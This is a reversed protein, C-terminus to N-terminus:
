VGIAPLYLSFTSGTGTESIVTIAGGHKRVITDCLTLGLGIGKQSGLQKTSFYPDFIRPLAEQPIGCGHDQVSIKVYNGPPLTPHKGHHEPLSENVAQITITGGSEQPMSEKANLLLHKIVNRFQSPDASVPWLNEALEFELTLGSNELTSLAEERIHDALQITTPLLNGGPSFAILQATLKAASAYLHGANELFPFAPSTPATSMKALELNGLLGQLLNNFDHAIGGALIGLAELNRNKAVEAELQKHETIDRNSIRHGLDHGDTDYVHHCIHYIWRIAGERHIIRFEFENALGNSSNKKAPPSHVDEYHDKWRQLDDPHILRELLGPDKKFADPSYGTVRECFPSCYLCSGESDEWIEWGYTYDAVTRFKEESELLERTREKVRQELSENIQRIETFQESLSEGMIRFNNILHNAEQIRSEPWTIDQGDTALRMPLDHTILRLKELTLVIRRSLFEALALAGLLVLFLMTLKGTYNEYLMKQFPAAPQELVLKWEALSGITTEAVYFSKQCQETPPTNPPLAPLWQSIGNDLRHLKGKGRAFPTMVEQDRRNTMIAKGNKDLLTYRASNIDTSRDLHERIQELSLVGGVYGSYKGNIVVPALLAVIPRPTGVRGMLVESLRPALTQKLQPLYPRDAFIRGLNNHGLEDTLPFYATSTADKDMLGIRLFNVDSNKAQELFPQMQHPSLMTAMEALNVIATQRNEVWTKVRNTIRHSDQTLHTKITRDIEAFDTRSGVALLLLAPCLVFFVLLNYVIERYSTLSSRSRLAYVTFILRAALANFIGNLAQKVTIISATSYPVQMVTHYFFYVLPMGLLLWYLTDALVLGITRRNILNGVIIAEATMIIIAYPHNWLSYTYCSIIAAAMIGPVLGFFQLALLAFISGFLFDINLFIPFNFYNGALGAAILTLFLPVSYKATGGM